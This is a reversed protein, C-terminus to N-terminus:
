WEWHLGLAKSLFAAMQGRTVYQNPCYQTATCGTTIGSAALAEVYQFFIHSTPVDTFTASPPAPSVQLSYYLKLGKFSLNASQEGFYVLAKYFAQSYSGYVPDITHPSSLQHYFSQFGGAADITWYEISAYNPSTDNYYVGIYITLNASSIDRFHVDVGHLVAGRPLPIRSAITNSSGSTLYIYGYTTYSWNMDSYPVSFSEYPLWIINWDDVGWNEPTPDPISVLAKPDPGSYDKSLPDNSTEAIIYSSFCIIFLLSLLFVLKKTKKM